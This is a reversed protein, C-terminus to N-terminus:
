EDSETKRVFNEFAAIYGIGDLFTDHKKNWRMRSIKLGILVAYVMKIDIDKNSIISAVIATDELSEDIPGYERQKEEARKFIIDNAEELITKCQESHEKKYGKLENIKSIIAKSYIKIDDITNVGEYDHATNLGTIFCLENLFEKFESM